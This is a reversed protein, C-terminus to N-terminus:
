TNRPYTLSDALTVDVIGWLMARDDAARNRPFDTDPERFSRLVVVAHSRATRKVAASLRRKYACDVGDLINSLAFGDFSAAPQSELFTAADATILEIDRAEPPARLAPLEGLLLARAYPNSRNPHLAFCRAMRSRMVAGLHPPLFNLFPAAYVTRLTTLSLLGDAAARFRRTDLHERWYAIQAPPDDMEVFHKLRVTSWGVMPAAHRALSMFREAVGLRGAEGACRREAYALQVPNIDVAVVEHRPALALATCGASAICFVRGGAAFASSEIATDEYMRGFLVQGGQRQGDFRGTAWVNAGTTATLRFDGGGGV